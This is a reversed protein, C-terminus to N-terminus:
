STPRSSPWAPLQGRPRRRHLRQRMAPNQVVNTTLLDRVMQDYPTNDAFHKRLWAEMAPALVQVQPNNNQPLLLTRWVHTM